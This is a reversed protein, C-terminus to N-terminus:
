TVFSMSAIGVSSANVGSAKAVSEIWTSQNFETASQSLVVTSTFATVATTTTTTPGSDCRVRGRAATANGANEEEASGDGALHCGGDSFVNFFYCEPIDECRKRCGASDGVWSPMEFKISVSRGDGPIDLPAWWMGDTYVDLDCDGSLSSDVSNSTTSTTTSTCQTM